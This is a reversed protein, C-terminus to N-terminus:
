ASQAKGTALDIKEDASPGYISPVKEGMTRLYAALQGRHHVSHSGALQLFVAAPYTFIAFTITKAAQEATLNKAKEILPPVNQDYFAVIDAVSAPRDPAKSQTFEGNVVGMLFFVEATAIHWALDGANFGKENPSWNMQNDPLALLVKRTITQEHGMNTALFDAITKAKEPTM